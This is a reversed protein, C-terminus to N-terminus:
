ISNKQKKKKELEAERMTDGIFNAVSEFRSFEKKKPVDEAFKTKNIRQPLGFRENYPKFSDKLAQLFSKKKEDM